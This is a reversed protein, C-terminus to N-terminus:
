ESSLLDLKDQEYIQRRSDITGTLSDLLQYKEALRRALAEQESPSSIQSNFHQQKILLFRKLTRALESLQNLDDLKKEIEKGARPCEDHRKALSREQKPVQTSVKISDLLSVLESEYYNDTSAKKSKIKKTQRKKVVRIARKDNLFALNKDFKASLDRFAYEDEPTLLNKGIYLELKEIIQLSEFAKRSINKFVHLVFCSSFYLLFISTAVTGFRVTHTDTGAGYGYRLQITGDGYGYRM